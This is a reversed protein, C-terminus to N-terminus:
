AINLLRNRESIIWAEDPNNPPEKCCKQMNALSIDATTLDIKLEGHTICYLTRRIGTETREDNIRSVDPHYCGCSAPIQGKFYPGPM